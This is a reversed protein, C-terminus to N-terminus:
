LKLKLFIGVPSRSRLVHDSRHILKYGRQRLRLADRKPLYRNGPEYGVVSYIREANLSERAHAVNGCVGVPFEKRVKGRAGDGKAFSRAPLQKGPRTPRRPRM